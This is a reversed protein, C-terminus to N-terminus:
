SHFVLEKHINVPKKNIKKKQPNKNRMGSGVSFFGISDWDRVLIFILIRDRGMGTFVGM